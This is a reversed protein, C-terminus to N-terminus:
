VHAIAHCFAHPLVRGCRRFRATGSREPFRLEAPQQRWGVYLAPRHPWFQRRWQFTDFPHDGGIQHVQACRGWYVYFARHQRDFQPQEDLEINAYFGRDIFREKRRLSNYVLRVDNQSIRSFDAYDEEPNGYSALLEIRDIGILKTGAEVRLYRNFPWAARIGGGLTQYKFIYNGELVRRNTFFSAGFNLRFQTFRYNIGADMSRFDDYLRYNARIHHYRHQDSLEVSADAYFDQLPHSGVRFNFGDFHMSPGVKGAGALRVEDVTRMRTNSTTKQEDLQRERRSKRKDRERESESQGSAEDFVYFRLRGDEKDTEDTKDRDKAKEEERIRKEAEAQEAKRISDAIIKARRAEKDSYSAVRSEGLRTMTVSELPTSPPEAWYGAVREGADYYMVLVGKKAAGAPQYGHPVNTLPEPRMPGLQHLNPLGIADSQVVAMSDGIVAPYRENAVPTNTLRDITRSDTDFRYVEFNNRYFTLPPKSATSTNYDRNSSFYIYRSNGGWTPQVDDYLDRTLRAPSEAFPAITYLDNAGNSMASFVLQKKDPSWSLGEILHLGASLTTRKQKGTRPNIYALQWRDGKPLAVVFLSGDPAWAIPTEMDKLAPNLTKYGWSVGTNNVGTKPSYTKVTLKGHKAVVFAVRGGTPSIRASVLRENRSTLSLQNVDDPQERADQLQNLVFDEWYRSFDGVDMGIVAVMGGDASRTLRTMYVLEQLKTPGYRRFIFYWISKRLTHGLQSDKEKLVTLAPNDSFSRLRAEDEPWWGEGLFSSLGDHYWKPLHMLARNQLARRSGRGYFMDEIMLESVRKKVVRYYSQYDGTWSVAGSTHNISEYPQRDPNYAAQRFAAPDPYVELLYKSESVYDLAIQLEDIAREALKATNRALQENQGYYNVVTRSTSVYRWNLRKWSRITNAEPGSFPLPDGQALGGSAIASLLLVVLLRVIVRM